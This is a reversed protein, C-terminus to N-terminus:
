FRYRRALHFQFAEEKKGSNRRRVLMEHEGSGSTFILSFSNFQFQLCLYCSSSDKLSISMQSSFKVCPFQLFRFVYFLFLIARAVVNLMDICCCNRQAIILLISFLNSIFGAPFLYVVIVFKLCREQPSCATSGSLSCSSERHSLPPATAYAHLDTLQNFKRSANNGHISQFQFRSLIRLHIVLLSAILNFSRIYMCVYM